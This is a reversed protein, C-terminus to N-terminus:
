RRMAGALLRSEIEDIRQQLRAVPEHELKKERHALFLRFGRFGLAAVGGVALPWAVYGVVEIM